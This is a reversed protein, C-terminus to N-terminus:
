SRRFSSPNAPKPRIETAWPKIRGVKAVREWNGTAKKALDIATEVADYSKSTNSTAATAVTASETCRKAHKM